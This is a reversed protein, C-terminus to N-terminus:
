RVNREPLAEHRRGLVVIAGPTSPRRGAHTKGAKQLGLAPTSRAAQMTSRTTSADAPRGGSFEQLLVRAPAHHQQQQQQQVIALQPLSLSSSGPLLSQEGLPRTGPLWTSTGGAAGAVSAASHARRESGCGNSRTAAGTAPLAATAAGVASTAPTRGRPATREWLPAVLAGSATAAGAADAASAFSTTVVAASAAPAADAAAKMVTAGPSSAPRIYVPAGTVPQLQADSGVTVRGLAPATGGGTGVGVASAASGAGVGGVNANCNSIVDPAAAPALSAGSAPLLRGLSPQVSRPLSSGLPVKQGSAPPPSVILSCSPDQAQAGDRTSGGEGRSLPRSGACEGDSAGDGRPPSRHHKHVRSQQPGVSTSRSRTVPSRSRQQTELESDEDADGARPRVDVITLTPTVDVPELRLREAPASLTGDGRWANGLGFRAANLHSGCAEEVKSSRVRPSRSCSASRSRQRPSGGLMGVCASSGRAVVSTQALSVSLRPSSTFFVPMFVAGDAPPPSSVHVAADGRSAGVLVRRGESAEGGTALSVGCNPCRGRWPSSGRPRGTKRPMGPSQVTGEVDGDEGTETRFQMYEDDNEEDDEEDEEDMEAYFGSWPEGDEEAEMQAKRRLREAHRERFPKSYRSSDLQKPLAGVGPAVAGRMRRRIGKMRKLADQYLRDFVKLPAVLMDGLGIEAFADGLAGIDVGRDLLAQKLEGIKNKLEEILMKLASAETRSKELQEELKKIRVLHMQERQQAQDLLQQLRYRAKDGASEKDEDQDVRAESKADKKPRPLKEDVAPAAPAKPPTKDNNQAAAALAKNAKSLAADKDELDRELKRAREAETRWREEAIRAQEKVEALAAETEALRREMDKIKQELARCRLQAEEASLPSLGTKGRLELQKRLEAALREQEELKAQLERLARAAEEAEAAGQAGRKASADSDRRAEKLKAEYDRAKDRLQQEAAQRQRELDANAAELEEIRAQLKEAREKAAALEDQLQSLNPLKAEGPNDPDIGLALMAARLAALKRELEEKEALLSSLQATANDLEQKSVRRETGGSPQSPRREPRQAAKLADREGELGRVRELLEDRELKVQELEELCKALMPGASQSLKVLAMKLSEEMTAQFYQRSREDLFHEPVFRFVDRDMLEEYLRQLESTWVKERKIDRIERVEQLYTTRCEDLQRQLEKTRSHLEDSRVGATAAGDELCLKGEMVADRTLLLVTWAMDTLTSLTFNTHASVQMFKQAFLSVVRNLRADGHLFDRLSNPPPAAGGSSRQVRTPVKELGDDAFSELRGPRGRERTRPRTLPLPEEERDFAPPVM